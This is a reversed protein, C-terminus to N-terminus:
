NGMSDLDGMFVGTFAKPTEISEGPALSQTFGGLRIGLYGPGGHYNGIEGAWRGLYDFGAFVADGAQADRLCFWPMYVGSAYPLPHGFDMNMGALEVSKEANDTTDSMDLYPTYYKSLTKTKSDFTRAYEKSLRVEKLMQSGTVFGGGRMYSLTLKDAEGARLRDALFYPNSITIPGSSRNQFKVWQRVISTAPYVVCTKEVRLQDNDLRVVLQIEGQPLVSTCSGVLRWGGNLGTYEKGDVALRFEEGRTAESVYLRRAQKNEFSTLAFVGKALQLRQEVMSTGLVWTTTHEDFRAYGDASAVEKAQLKLHGAALVLQLCLISLRSIPPHKKM